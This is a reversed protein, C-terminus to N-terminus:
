LGLLQRVAPPYDAVKKNVFESSSFDLQITTEDVGGQIKKGCLTGQYLLIPDATSNANDAPDRFHKLLTVTTNRFPWNEPDVSSFAADKSFTLMARNDSLFGQQSIDSIINLRNNPRYTRSGGTYTSSITLEYGGTTYNLRLNGYDPDSIYIDVLTESIFIPAELNANQAATLTRAM